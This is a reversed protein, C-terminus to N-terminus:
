PNTELTTTVGCMLSEWYQSGASLFPMQFLAENSAPYITRSIFFKSPLRLSGLKFGWLGGSSSATIRSNRHHVLVCRHGPTKALCFNLVLVHPQRKVEVLKVEGTCTSACVDWVCPCTRARAFVRARVCVRALVCMCVCVCLFCTKIRCSLRMKVKYLGLYRFRLKRKWLIPIIALVLSNNPSWSSVKYQPFHKWFSLFSLVWSLFIIFM